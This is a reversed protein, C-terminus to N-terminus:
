INRTSNIMMNAVKNILYNGVDNITLIEVKNILNESENIMSSFKYVGANNAEAQQEMIVKNIVERINANSLPTHNLENYNTINDYMETWYKDNANSM